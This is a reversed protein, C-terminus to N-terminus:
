VCLKRITAAWALKLPFQRFVLDFKIGNSDDLVNEYTWDNNKIQRMHGDSFLVEVLPETVAPVCKIVCGMVGDFVRQEEEVGVIDEIRRIEGDSFKVDVYGKCKPVIKTVRGRAGNVLGHRQDINVVLMVQANVKLELTEMAPCCKRAMSLARTFKLLPGAGEGVPAAQAIFTTSSGPLDALHTANVEDVDKNHAFMKTPIINHEKVAAPQRNVRTRLILVDEDTTKGCRLRQLIEGFLADRQRYLHKLMFIDTIHEEWVPSQFVFKSEGDRVVAPLQAFDGFFVVQLGGFFIDPNNRLIRGLKEIKEFLEPALMSVEDVILVHTDEWRQKTRGSLKLLIEEVDGEALGAGIFKHLTEGGIPVAAMGTTACVHVRKNAGKLAKVLADLYVTKGCGAPGTIFCNKGELVAQTARELTAVSEQHGSWVAAWDIPVGDPRSIEGVGARKCMSEFDAM